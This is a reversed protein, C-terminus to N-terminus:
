EQSDGIFQTILQLAEHVSAHRIQERSGKLALRRVVVPPEDPKAVDGNVAALRARDSPMAMAVYVLGAPKGDEDPGPGAVGTTALAFMGHFYEPQAFLTTAGLAMQKAVDPRVAGERELLKRDVHLISAKARIDYTIVSGLFVRSAGPIRVFADALLGGTLSEAAAIKIDRELCYALAVEALEDTSAEHDDPKASYGQADNVMM